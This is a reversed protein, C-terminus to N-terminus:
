RAALLEDDDKAKAEYALHSRSTEVLSCARRALIGAAALVHVHAAEGTRGDNEGSCTPRRWTASPSCANSALTRQRSSACARVESVQMGGCRRKWRYFAHESIGNVRCVEIATM